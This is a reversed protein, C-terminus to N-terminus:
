VAHPAVKWAAHGVNLAVVHVTLESQVVHMVFSLMPVAAVAHTVIGLLAIAVYPLMTSQSTLPTLLMAETNALLGHNLSSMEFHFVADTLSMLEMNPEANLKSWFKAPQFVADTFSMLEMSKEANIKSCFRAPQFVADTFSMLEMNEEAFAKLWFTAPQFVAITFSMLEMNEEADLNLWFRAPQFVADTILM